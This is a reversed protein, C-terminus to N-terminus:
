RCTMGHDSLADLLAREAEEGPWGTLTDASEANKRFFFVPSQRFEVGEWASPNYVAGLRHQPHKSQWDSLRAYELNFKFPAVWAVRPHDILCQTRPDNAIFDYARRSFGCGPHFVVVLGDSITSEPVAAVRLAQGNSFGKILSPRDAEHDDALVLPPTSPLDLEAYKARLASAQDFQRGLMLLDHAREIDHAEETGQDQMLAFVQLGQSRVQENDAFLLTLWAAHLWASHAEAPEEDLASHVNQELLPSYRDLLGPGVESFVHERPNAFYEQEFQTLSELIQQPSPDMAAVGNPLLLALFLFSLMRM